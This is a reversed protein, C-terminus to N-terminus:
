GLNISDLSGEGRQNEGIEALTTKTGRKNSTIM